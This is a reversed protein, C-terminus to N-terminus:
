QDGVKRVQAEPLSLLTDNELMIHVTRGVLRGRVETLTPSTVDLQVTFTQLPNPETRPTRYDGAVDPPYQEPNRHLPQPTVCATLLLLLLIRYM